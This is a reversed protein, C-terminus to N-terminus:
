KNEFWVPTVVFDGFQCTTYGREVGKFEPVFAVLGGNHYLPVSLANEMILREVERYATARADQDVTAAGEAILEDIGDATTGAPNSNGYSTFKQELTLGPDAVGRFATIAVPLDKLQYLRNNIEAGTVSELTFNFGSDKVMDQVAQALRIYYPNDIQGVTVDVGDPYGAEALLEQAKAPDYPYLEAIAPDHAWSDAPLPSSAPTGSGETLAQALLERDISHQLAQRVRLDDFPAVSWNIYIEAYQATPSLEYAVRGQQEGDVASPLDTDKMAAYDIEGSAIREVQFEEGAGLMDIGALYRHQQDWYGDWASVHMDEAPTHSDYKYPGAGVGGNAGYSDGAAEIAAPSPVMGARDTLVAPLVGARPESLNLVVTYDDPAEVSEIASLSDVLASSPNSQAREFHAKVAASDFPTGDQFQVGQRLHLVFTSDDPSEWSEALGPALTGDPLSRILTDYVWRLMEAECPVVSTVPDMHQVGNTGILRLRRSTDANVDSAPPDTSPSEADTGPATTAESGGETPASTEVPATTAGTSDDDGGCAALVLALTAALAGASRIGRHGHTM